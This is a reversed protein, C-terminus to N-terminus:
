VLLNGDCGETQAPMWGDPIEACVVRYLLTFGGPRSKISPANAGILDWPSACASGPEGKFLSRAEV